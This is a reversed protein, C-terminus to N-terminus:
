GNQEKRKKTTQKKNLNGQEGRYWDELYQRQNLERDTVIDFPQDKFDYGNTPKSKIKKM